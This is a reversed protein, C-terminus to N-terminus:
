SVKEILAKAEKTQELKLDIEELLMKQANPDIKQRKSNAKGMERKFSELHELEIGSRELHEAVRVNFRAINPSMKLFTPFFFAEKVAEWYAEPDTEIDPLEIKESRLKGARRKESNYILGFILGVVAIFVGFTVGIGTWKYIGYTVIFPLPISLLWMPLFFLRGVIGSVKGIVSALFIMWSIFITLMEEGIWGFYYIAFFPLSLLGAILTVLIADINFIIM